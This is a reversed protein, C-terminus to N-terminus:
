NKNALSRCLNIVSKRQKEDDIRYYVRALELFERSMSINGKVQQKTDTPTSTLLRPSQKAINSPLTDFFYSIKVGLIASLDVLRSASVRNVGSEYKQVQQFTIGLLDALQTQSLALLTRRTRVMTGVHIDVPNPIGSRGSSIKPAARKLAPKKISKRNAQKTM